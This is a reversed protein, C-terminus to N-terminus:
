MILGGSKQTILKLDDVADQLSLLHETDYFEFLFDIGGYDALYRYSEQTTINAARAFEGICAIMYAIMKREDSSM